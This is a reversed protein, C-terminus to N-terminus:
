LIKNKLFKYFKLPPALLSTNCFNLAPFTYREAGFGAYFRAVSETRSGNFDLTLPQGAYKRIYEDMLFFMAKRDAFDENRGSAWFWLRQHDHLFVAGALLTGSSDRAGWVELADKQKAIACMQFFIRYDAEQIRVSKDQGRHSGRFLAIVEAEDLNTVIQTDFSQASRINRKHNNSYGTCINEYSGHLPLRHSIQVNGEPIACTDPISENLGMDISAFKKPIAKLFATVLNQPVPEEAFIGLRSCYFPNYIYQFGYKQRWPLPMVAAYDDLVLAAWMPNTVSLFDYEAFITAAPSNEICRNWKTRDIEDHQYFRIVNRGFILPYSDSEAPTELRQSRM